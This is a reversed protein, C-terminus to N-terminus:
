RCSVPSLREVRALRILREGEVSVRASFPLRLGDTRRARSTSSPVPPRTLARSKMANHRCAASGCSGSCTCDHAPGCTIEYLVEEPEIDIPGHDIGAQDLLLLDFLFARRSEAVRLFFEDNADVARHIARATLTFKM